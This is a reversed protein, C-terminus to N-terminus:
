NKKEVVNNLKFSIAFFLLMFISFMPFIYKFSFFILLIAPAIKGVILGTELSTNYPGYFREADKGKKIIDFFYAETIPEVMAMGFSGLVLLGLVLYINSIFVFCLIAIVSVFLYGMLFFRKAGHIGALKSFIYESLILPSAVAVFFIGIFKEDIGANIMFLPIYLYVMAWWLSVGVSMIYAMVRDRNKFFELFNQIPHNHIKKSVNKDKINSIKFFFFAIFILFGSLAFISSHGLKILFLTAIFPGIIWALNNFSYVIGENESLYSKRSKDKVIIGSVMLKLSTLLTITVSLFIFFILNSNLAFLFYTISTLLLMFSYLFIKNNKEIFPVLLFLSVFGLFSLFGSFFGVLSDNHLFSQLYVAWITNVLSTAIAVVFIVFVLKGMGTFNRVGHDKKILLGM